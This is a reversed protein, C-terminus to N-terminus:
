RSAAFAAPEDNILVKGHDVAVADGLNLSAYRTGNVSLDRGHIVIEADNCPAYRFVPQADNSKEQQPGPVSTRYCDTVVVKHHDVEAEVRGLLLNNSKSCAFNLVVVISFAALLQKNKM